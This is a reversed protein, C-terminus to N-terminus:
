PSQPAAPPPILAPQGAIVPGRSGPARLLNLTPRSNREDRVRIGGVWRGDADLYRQELRRLRDGFRQRLKDYAAHVHVNEALDDCYVACTMPFLLASAVIDAVQLVVHADSHGFVPSDVFHPYAGGGARFRRTTVSHVSPVNKSKTRSDLIMLGEAQATRLQTEFHDALWSVAKPYVHRPLVRADPKVLVEALVSADNRELMAVVDDLFGVARRRERRSDKRLASRIDSGKIEFKILDSLQMGKTAHPNFKKKLELFDWFVRKASEHSLVVGALVLVPPDLRTRLPQEDGSEDVYCLLVAGVYM